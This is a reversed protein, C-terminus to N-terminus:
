SVEENILVRFRSQTGDPNVDYREVSSIENVGYHGLAGNILGHALDAFPRGSSYELHIMSNKDRELVDFRPLKADSYLKRVDRHIVNEIGALLDISSDMGAIIDKHSGALVGFLYFGFDTVLEAIPTKTRESVAVAMTLFDSHPYNGVNSYVGSTSLGDSSLAHDAVSLSFQEEVFTEFAKFIAGKM